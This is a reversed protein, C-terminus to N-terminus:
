EQRNVNSSRASTSEGQSGLAWVMEQPSMGKGLALSQTRRGGGVSGRGSPRRMVEPSRVGGPIGDRPPSGSRPWGRGPNAGPSYPSAYGAPSDMYGTTMPTALRSPGAEANYKEAPTDISLGIQGKRRPLKGDTSSELVPLAPGLDARTASTPTRIDTSSAGLPTNPPQILHNPSPKRSCTFTITVSFTEGAYFAASAPTITIDLQTDDQHHLTKSQALKTSTSSSSFGFFSTM